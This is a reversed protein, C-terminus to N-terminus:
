LFKKITEDLECRKVTSVTNDASVFFCNSANWKTMRRALFLLVIDQIRGSEEILAVKV